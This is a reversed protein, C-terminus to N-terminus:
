ECLSRCSRLKGLASEITAIFRPLDSVTKSPSAQLVRLATIIEGLTKAPDKVDCAALHLQQNNECVFCSKKFSELDAIIKTFSAYRDGEKEMVIQIQRPTTTIKEKASVCLTNSEQVGLKQPQAIEEKFTNTEKKEEENSFYPEYEELSIDEPTYTDKDEFEVCATLLFFCLLFSVQLFPKM